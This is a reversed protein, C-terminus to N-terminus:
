MKPDKDNLEAWDSAPSTSSQMSLEEGGPNQGCAAESYLQKGIDGHRIVAKPEPSFTCVDSDSRFSNIDPGLNTEFEGFTSSKPNGKCM